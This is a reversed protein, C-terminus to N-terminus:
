SPDMVRGMFLVMGTKTDRILYIFPRDATFDIPAKPKSLDDLMTLATAASAITGKEDVIITAKHLAEFLFLPNTSIGSLDAKPTFVSKTGLVGLTEKLSLSPSTFTFKPITLRLSEDRLSDVVAALFQTTVMREVELFKGPRPLIILMAMPVNYEILAAQWTATETYGINDIPNQRLMSVSVTSNDLRHFPHEMTYSEKFPKDWKADFYITNALVLKTYSNLTGPSVIDKIMNQTHNSIWDNITTCSQEPAGAFDLSAPQSYHYDHLTTVFESKLPFGTQVWLGNAINLKFGNESVKRTSTEFGTLMDRYASHLSDGKLTYHLTREIEKATEGKAGAYLMAFAESISYPSFFINGPKRSFQTYLDIGFATNDAALTRLPIPVNTTKASSQPSLSQAHLSNFDFCITLLVFTLLLNVSRTPVPHLCRM